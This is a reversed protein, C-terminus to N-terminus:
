MGATLEAASQFKGQLVLPLARVQLRCLCLCGLGTRVGVLLNRRALAFSGCSLHTHSVGSVSEAGPEAYAVAPGQKAYAVAPSVPLQFMGM